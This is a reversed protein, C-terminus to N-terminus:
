LFPFYIYPEQDQLLTALASARRHKYPGLLGLLLQRVFPAGLVGLTGAIWRLPPQAFAQYCTNLEGGFRHM